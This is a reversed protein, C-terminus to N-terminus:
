ATSCRSWTSGRASRRLLRHGDRPRHHRRRRDAHAQARERLELAGTSTVVRPDDKPMFPLKVAESGAAIIARDFGITQDHRRAAADVSVHHDDIFSAAHRTVVTVKRMKAMQALGGTLRGM